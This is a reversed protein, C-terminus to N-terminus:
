IITIPVLKHNPPWVVAPSWTVTGMDDPPVGMCTSQGSGGGGRAGAPVTVAVAVAGAALSLVVAHKLKLVSLQAEEAIRTSADM